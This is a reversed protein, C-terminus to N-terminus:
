IQFSNIRDWVGKIGQKKYTEKVDALNLDPHYEFHTRDNLASFDGGWKFGWKKGIKGLTKWDHHEAWSPNGNKDYFIIDAALGYNHFSNGGSARTVGRGSQFLIDQKKISRYGEYLFVNLGEKQAEELVKTIRTILQPHLRGSKLIGKPDYPLRKPKLSQLLKSLEADQLSINNMKFIENLGKIIQNGPIQSKASEVLIQILNDALIPTSNFVTQQHTSDASNVLSSHDVNIGM